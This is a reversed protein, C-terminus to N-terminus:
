SIVSSVCSAWVSSAWSRGEYVASLAMARGSSVSPLSVSWRKSSADYSAPLATSRPESAFRVRQPNIAKNTYEATVVDQAGEPILKWPAIYDKTFPKYFRDLKVPKQYWPKAGLTLLMGGRGASAYRDMSRRYPKVISTM